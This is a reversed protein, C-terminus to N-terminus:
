ETALMLLFENVSSHLSVSMLIGMIDEKSDDPNKLRENIISRFIAAVQERARVTRKFGPLPLNPFFVSLPNIGLELELNFILEETLTIFFSMGHYLHAIRENDEGLHKRIDEGMLCRSATLITIKNMADLLDVEGSEGWRRNLYDLAEAEIIAPAKRLQSLALSSRVFRLQEYMVETPSDYVVGPGFVPIM